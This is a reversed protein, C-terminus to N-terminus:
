RIYVIVFSYTVYKLNKAAQILVTDNLTLKLEFALYKNKDSAVIDITSKNLGLDVEHWTSFDLLRLIKIIKEGFEEESKYSMIWYNGCKRSTWSNYCFNKWVRKRKTKM